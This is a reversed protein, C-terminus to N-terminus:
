RRIGHYLQANCWGNTKVRVNSHPMPDTHIVALSVDPAVEAVVDDGRGIYTHMFSHINRGWCIKLGANEYINNDNKVWEKVHLRQLVSCEILLASHRSRANRHYRTTHGRLQEDRYQMMRQPIAHPPKVIIIKLQHNKLNIWLLFDHWVYWLIRCAWPPLLHHRLPPRARPPAADSGRSVWDIQTLTQM